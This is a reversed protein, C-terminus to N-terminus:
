RNHILWKRSQSLGDVFSYHPEFGLKSKAKSIDFANNSQFFELTRRSMPPEKKLLKFVTELTSALIVGLEYPIKLKPKPIDLAQSFGDILENTTIAHEGGVIFLEGVAEDKEMALCFADVMDKIYIPHRLNEGKGIMLFRGKSLARYIKQTRPCGPGYVWAPRIIVVPFDNALAFEKVKQEGALKTEGYTSLPHCATEEDAPITTLNGYVGVSSVHVFRKVGKSQALELLSPLSHVNVDWYESEDLSIQLHASALHFVVDVGELLESMLKQNRFDGVKPQFRPLRDGVPKPYHLDIGTVNYGRDVLDNSLHYGIFGGAGTVLINKM